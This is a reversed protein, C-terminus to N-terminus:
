KEITMITSLSGNHASSPNQPIVLQRRLIWGETIEDIGSCQNINIVVRDGDVKLFAGMIGQEESSAKVVGVESDRPPASM